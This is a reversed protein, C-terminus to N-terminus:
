LGGVEWSRNIEAKEIDPEYVKDVTWLGDKGKFETQCGVKLEESRDVWTTLQKSGQHAIIQRYQSM